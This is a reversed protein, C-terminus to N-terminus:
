VDGLVGVVEVAGVVQAVGAAGGAETVGGYSRSLAKM